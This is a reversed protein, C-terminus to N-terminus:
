HRRKFAQRAGAALLGTGLLLLTSPEPIPRPNDFRYLVDHLIIGSAPDGGGPSFSVWATGSAQLEGSLVAPEMRAADQYAALHGELTFPGPYGPYGPYDIFAGNEGQTPAFVQPGTFTLEADFFLDGYAVGGVVGRLSDDQDSSFGYTTTEFDVTQGSTCTPFCRDYWFTGSLTRPFWGGELEFGAGAILVDGEEDTLQLLGSTIVFPEAAASRGFLLVLTVLIYFMRAM